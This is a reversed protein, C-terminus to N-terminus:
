HIREHETCVRESGLHDLRKEFAAEATWIAVLVFALRSLLEDVAAEVFAGHGEAIGLTGTSPPLAAGPM